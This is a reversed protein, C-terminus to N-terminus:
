DEDTSMIFVTEDGSQWTLTTDGIEVEEGELILEVTEAIKDKAEQIEDAFLSNEITDACLRTMKKSLSDDGSVENAGATITIRAKQMGCSTGCGGAPEHITLMGHVTGEKIKTEM